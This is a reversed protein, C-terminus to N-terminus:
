HSRIVGLVTVDDHSWDPSFERIAASVRTVVEWPDRRSRADMGSVYAAMDTPSLDDADHHNEVLGDTYALFLDGRMFVRSAVEWQGGLASVLPGTPKCTGVENRSSVVIPAHHGANIWTLTNRLPDIVALFITLTNTRDAHFNTLVEMTALLSGGTTLSARVITRARLATIAAQPGHGSIDAIVVAVSGDDLPWVQWWDGSSVGASPRSTGAWVVDAHQDTEPQELEHVVAAALPAEDELGQRAALARDMEEVLSRRMDEAAVSIERLENPGTPAIPHHPDDMTELLDRRIDTLPRTVWARTAIILGLGIALLAIGTVVLVIVLVRAFGQEQEYSTALQANARDIVMETADIMADYSIWAARRNTARAAAAQDGSAMSQLTPTVDAEVWENLATAAEDAETALAPDASLQDLLTRARSLAQQHDSLARPRETLVYDALSGSAETQALLLDQASALVPLAAAQLTRASQITVSYSVAVAVAALSLIGAVVITVWRARTALSQM